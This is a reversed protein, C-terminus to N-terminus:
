WLRSVDYRDLAVDGSLVPVNMDQAQAVLLRDFPDRHHRPLLGARVAQEVSIPLETFGEEVLRGVLDTILPLANLKGLNVKIAMEWAVVASVLITTEPNKLISSAKSSLKAPDNFWWILAHTDLLVKM